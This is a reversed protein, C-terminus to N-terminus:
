GPNRGVHLAMGQLDAVRGAYECCSEIGLNCAKHRQLAQLLTTHWVTEWQLLLALPEPRGLLLEPLGQASWYLALALRRVLPGAL